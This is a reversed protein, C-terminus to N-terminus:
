SLANVTVTATSAATVAGDSTVVSAGLTYTTSATSPTYFVYSVPIKLTGSAAVAVTFGPSLPADGFGCSLANLSATGGTPIATPTLSLVNVSAGGSNSVTVVGNVPQNIVVTSPSLAISATIAM